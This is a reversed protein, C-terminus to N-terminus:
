RPSGVYPVRPQPQSELASTTPLEGKYEAAEGTSKLAYGSDPSGALSRAGEELTRRTERVDVSSPRLSGIAISVAAPSRRINETIPASNCASLQRRRQISNVLITLSYVRGMISVFIAFIIHDLGNLVVTVMSLITITAVVAGTTLAGICVARILHQTARWVPDIGSLSWVMSLAILVDAITCIILSITTTDVNHVLVRKYPEGLGIAVVTVVMHAVALFMIFASWTTHRIVKWYRHIMFTQEIVASLGTSVQLLAIPWNAHQEGHVVFRVLHAFVAFTGLTDNVLILILGYRSSRPMTWRRLCFVSLAVELTFLATNLWSGLLLCLVWVRFAYGVVPLAVAGM